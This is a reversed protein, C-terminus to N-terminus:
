SYTSSCLGKKYAGLHGAFFNPIARIIELENRTGEKMGATPVLPKMVWATLSAERFLNCIRKAAREAMEDDTTDDAENGGDTCVSRSLIDAKLQMVAALVEPKNARSDVVRGFVTLFNLLDPKTTASIRSASSSSICEALSARSSQRPMCGLAMGLTRLVQEWKPRVYERVIVHDESLSQAGVSLVKERLLWALGGLLAEYDSALAAQLGHATRSTFRFARLLFWVPDESQYYTLM